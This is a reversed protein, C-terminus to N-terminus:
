KGISAEGPLANSVLSPRCEGCMAGIQDLVHHELREQTRVQHLLLLHIVLSDIHIFCGRCFAKGKKVLNFMKDTAANLFVTDHEVNTM